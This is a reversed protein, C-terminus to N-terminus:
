KQSQESSKFFQSSERLKRMENQRQNQTLELIEEDEILHAKKAELLDERTFSDAAVSLSHISIDLAQKIDERDGLTDHWNDDDHLKISAEANLWAQYVRRYAEVKSKLTDDRPTFIHATENM